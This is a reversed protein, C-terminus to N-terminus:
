GPRSVSHVKRMAYAKVMQGGWAGEDVFDEGYKDKMYDLMSEAGKKGAHFLPHGAIGSVRRSMWIGALVATVSCLLFILRGKYWLM